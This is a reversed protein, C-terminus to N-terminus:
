TCGSIFTSVRVSLTVCFCAMWGSFLSLEMVVDYVERERLEEKALLFYPSHLFLFFLFGHWLAHSFFYLIFIWALFCSLFFFLFFSLFSLGCKSFWLLLSLPMVFSNLCFNLIECVQVEQDFHIVQIEKSRTKSKAVNHSALIGQREYRSLAGYLSKTLIM